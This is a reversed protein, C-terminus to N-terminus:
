LELQCKAKLQDYLGINLPVMNLEAGTDRKGTKWVGNMQINLYASQTSTLNGEGVSTMADLELHKRYTTSLLDVSNALDM